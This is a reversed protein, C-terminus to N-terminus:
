SILLFLAFLWRTVLFDIKLLILVFSLMNAYYGVLKLLSHRKTMPHFVMSTMDTIVVFSKLAQLYTCPPLDADIL